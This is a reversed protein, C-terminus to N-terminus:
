SSVGSSSKGVEDNQEGLRNSSPFYLTSYGNAAAPNPCGNAGVFDFADPGAQNVIM